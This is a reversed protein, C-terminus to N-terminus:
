GDQILEEPVNFCWEYTLHSQAYDEASRCDMILVSKEQIKQFLEECTISNLDKFNIDGAKPSSVAVKDGNKLLDFKQSASLDDYNGKYGAFSSSLSKAQAQLEYRRRLSNTLLELKDMCKKQSSNGGLVDHVNQKLTLYDPKNRISHLLNFYRMYFVYALEEDGERRHKEAEDYLKKCSILM